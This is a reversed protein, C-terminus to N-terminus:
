KKYEKMWKLLKNANQLNDFHEGVIKKREQIHEQTFPQQALRNIQQTFEDPTNAIVCAKELGTGKVMFDNVICYRSSYLANLLKLKIGTPQFTPLVNLHANQLLSQMKEHSPSTYLQVKNKQCLEQVFVPPQHGAIIWDISTNPIVKELLFRAAQSNENVSLNAHYLAYPGKGTSIDFAEQNHFVPLYQTPFKEKFYQYDNLSIALVLQAYKLTKEYQKLLFSETLYYGFKLLNTESKALLRYYDAEINHARVMKLRNKLAPHDLYYCSHLGEFLIPEENKLLNQLLQENKRSKVIYPIRFSLSQLAPHRPYYHVTQCYDLLRNQPQQGKYNFCHLHITQDLKNLAKIKYFVDIVGGYNPPFPNSFSVINM